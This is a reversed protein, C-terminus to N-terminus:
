LPHVHEGKLRNRFLIRQIVRGITGAGGGM